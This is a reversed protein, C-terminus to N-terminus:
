EGQREQLSLWFQAAEVAEGPTLYGCLTKIERRNDVLRDLIPFFSGDARRDVAMLEWPTVTVQKSVRNSGHRWGITLRKTHTPRQTVDACGFVTRSATLWGASAHTTDAM